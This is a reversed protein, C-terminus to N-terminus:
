LKFYFGRFTNGGRVRLFEAEAIKRAEKNDPKDRENEFDCYARLRAENAAKDAEVEFFPTKLWAVMKADWDAKLALLKTAKATDAIVGCKAIAEIVDAHEALDKAEKALAKIKTLDAASANTIATDIELELKAADTLKKKIQEELTPQPQPPQPQSNSTKTDSPTNTNNTSDGRGTPDTGKKDCGKCSSFTFSSALLVFASVFLRLMSRKVVGACALHTDTAM